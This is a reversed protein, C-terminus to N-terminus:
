AAVEESAAVVGELARARELMSKARQVLEQARFPTASEGAYKVAELEHLWRELEDLLDSARAGGEPGATAVATRGRALWEDDNTAALELELKEEIEGRLLRTLEFGVERLAEADGAAERQLRLALADILARADVVVPQPERERARRRRWRAVLIWAALLIVVIAGLHLPRLVPVQASLPVLPALERPADEGEALETWIDVSPTDSFAGAGNQTRVELTPLVRKGGELSLVTWRFSTRRRGDQTPRTETAPGDVVAWSLRELEPLTALPDPEPLEVQTGAPHEVALLWTMPEGVAAELPECSLRAELQL